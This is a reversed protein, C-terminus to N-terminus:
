QQHVQGDIAEIRGTDSNIKVEYFFLSKNQKDNHPNTKYGFYYYYDKYYYFVTNLESYEKKSHYDNFKAEAETFKVKVKKQLEAFEQTNKLIKM